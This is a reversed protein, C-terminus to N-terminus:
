RPPTAHGPALVLYFTCPLNVNEGDRLAVGFQLSGAATFVYARARDAVTSIAKADVGALLTPIAASAVFTTAHDIQHRVGGAAIKMSATSVNVPL